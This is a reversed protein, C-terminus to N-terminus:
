NPRTKNSFLNLNGQMNRLRECRKDMLVCEITVKGGWGGGTTGEVYKKDGWAINVKVRM